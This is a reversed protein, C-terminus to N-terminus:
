PPSAALNAIDNESLAYNYIRFDDVQGDLYPDSYQSKGIYNQNTTGLLYPAISISSSAIENGNLYLRGTTGSLTVAVHQWSGTPLPAPGNIQQEGGGGGTTIAYRLTDASSQVTLFMNTNTGTGFDFIREWADRTDIWVWAAITFDSCNEMIGEPLTIYEDVGSLTYPGGGPPGGEPWILEDGPPPPEPPVYATDNNDAVWVITRGGRNLRTYHPISLVDINEYGGSTKMKVTGQMTLIGEGLLGTDWATTLVANPEIYISDLTPVNHDVSELNYVMPGYQLAVQGLNASVQPDSKIMQIDMPLDLTITDGSNWTRTITVYGDVIAPTIPSGNVEISNYGDIEPTATYLTSETRDPIRIEISFNSSVEPSVIIDVIGSYPYDTVQEVEIQMGDFNDITGSGAIFYNVYLSNTDENILYTKDKLALLTRPINGVCCPCSHWSYRANSQDLPQQYYYNQGALDVSSLVNNYITREVVDAYKADHYHWNMRNNWFILGCSACTECYGTDNPLVYDGAFAEGSSTAGVGGTLYMKRNVASDWIYDVANLYDDDQQLLAIDTMGSYLYCARVAHGVANTQQIVPLHNQDYESGGGRCDMLWKSTDIYKNGLGQGEVENVLRGLRNLAMEIVEHGNSYVRQPVLFTDYFHDGCKKAANYLRLDQGETVQYHAVGSEIFYAQVYCEHNGRNSYRVYGNDITELVLTDIYGDPQQVDLIIPIWENLKTQIYNQADNIDQDGDADISLALCMAEVTNHTFADSFVYGTKSAHPLGDLAKKAEIFQPIGYPQVTDLTDICHILWQTIQRKFQTRWFGQVAFDNIYVPNISHSYLPLIDVTIQLTAQDPANLGDDVQVTFNNIGEDSSSPTGSLAGNPDVNLWEPGGEKSFTLQSVDYYEVDDSLTGNYPIDGIADSEIIPDSNFVPPVILLWNTVITWLDVVDYISKWGNGLVALDKFDVKGNGTLDGNDPMVPVLEVIFVHDGDRINDMNLSNGGASGSSYATGGTYSDAGNLGATEFFYNNGTDFSTVDFGYETDGQLVVPTDLEFHVWTGTGTGSQTSGTGPFLSDDEEDGSVTYPEVSLEFAATGEASPDTIRIELQADATDTNWWTTTSTYTVNKLWFGNMLYAGPGTTFTQGLCPRDHAIYTANHDGESVNGSGDTSEGLHYVYTSEITPAASHYTITIAQANFGTLTVCLAWLVAVKVHFKM